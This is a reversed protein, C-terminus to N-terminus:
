GGYVVDKTEQYLAPIYDDHTAREQREEWDEIVLQGQIEHCVSSIFEAALLDNDTEALFERIEDIRDALRDELRSSSM